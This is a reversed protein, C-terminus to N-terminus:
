QEAEIFFVPLSLDIGWQQNSNKQVLVFEIGKVLHVLKVVLSQVSTRCEIFAGGIELQSFRKKTERTFSADEKGRSLIRKMGTRKKGAEESERQPHLVFVVDYTLRKSLNAVYQYVSDNLSTGNTLFLFKRNKSKSLQRVEKMISEAVDWQGAEAFAAAAAIDELYKKM